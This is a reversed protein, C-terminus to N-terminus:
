ATLLLYIGGFFIVNFVIILVIRLLGFFIMMVVPELFGWLSDWLFLLHDTIWWWVKELIAPDKGTELYRHINDVERGSRRCSLKVQACNYNLKQMSETISSRSMWHDVVDANQKALSQFGQDALRGTSRLISNAAPIFKPRIKRPSPSM